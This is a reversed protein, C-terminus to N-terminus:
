AYHGAHLSTQRTRDVEIRGYGAVWRTKGSPAFSRSVRERIRRRLCAFARVREEIRARDEEHSAELFRELNIRESEAFGFLSRGEETMWIDDESRGLGVLGLQGREGRPKDASRKGTARGRQRAVAARNPGGRLIDYSLEFGMAVIVGMFPLSVLYPM